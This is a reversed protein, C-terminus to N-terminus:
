REGVPRNILRFAGVLVPLAGCKYDRMVIAAAALSTDATCSHAPSSMVEQVKMAGGRATEDEGPDPGPVM